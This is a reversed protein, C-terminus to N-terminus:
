RDESAATRRTPAHVAVPMAPSAACRQPPRRHAVVVAVVVAAAVGLAVSGVLVAGILGAATVSAAFALVPGACCAACAAAGFGVIARRDRGEGTM